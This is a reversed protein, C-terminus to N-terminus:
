QLFICNSAFKHQKDSTRKNSRVSISRHGTIEQILQEDINSRYMKTAAVSRLSHNSYFGPFRATKCMENVVDCLKNVGCPRDQYWISDPVKKRPQLYFSSCSCNPPLKTLYFLIIRVPCQYVDEIPYLDAEKPQVKRQKIGGKNTKLGIDENYQIFIDGEDDCIFKLQSSFLPSRLM